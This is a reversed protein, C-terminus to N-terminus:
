DCILPAGLPNFDFFDHPKLDLGYWHVLTVAPQRRSCFRDYRIRGSSVLHVNGIDGKDAALRNMLSTISVSLCKMLM